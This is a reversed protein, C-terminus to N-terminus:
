AAWFCPGTLATGLNWTRGMKMWCRRCGAAGARSETGQMRALQEAVLGVRMSVELEGPLLLMSRSKLGWSRSALASAGVSDDLHAAVDERLRGQWIEPGSTRGQAGHTSQAGLQHAMVAPLGGGMQVMALSAGVQMGGLEARVLSALRARQHLGMRDFPAAPSGDAAPQMEEVPTCAQQLGVSADPPSAGHYSSQQQRRVHRLLLRSVATAAAALMGLPLLTEM